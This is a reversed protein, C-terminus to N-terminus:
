EMVPIEIELYQQNSQADEGKYFRFHYVDYPYDIPCQLNFSQQEPEISEIPACVANEIIITQVAVTRTSGNSEYYFGNFYHCDDPRRFKVKVPYTQGPSIYEPLEVSEVPIFEMHFDVTDEDDPVCAVALAVMCVFFLIKKM